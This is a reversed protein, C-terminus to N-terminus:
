VRLTPIRGGRFAIGGLVTLALLYTAAGGAVAWPLALSRLPLLAAAMAGAAVTSRGFRRLHPRAFGQDRAFISALGLRLVETAVTAWAAGTIGLRPILTVNLTLNLVTAWLNIRFVLDERGRAMLAMAPVGRVLLLPVSWMLIGLATASAEYAPGFITLIIAPALMAGGIAAPFTVAFVHASATDYLTQESHRDTHLRTLAPLLSQNYATGLNLLFSVMAYAAAYYGVDASGRFVRLFLLDSNYIVLGLIGSWVMPLARRVYPKIVSPDLHLRLAAGQRRLWWALLFAALMDGVFQALPVRAVDGPDSVILFVTSAMVLEGAARAISAYRTHELGLHIWRTNAGVALLCLTWVAIVSGDPEPVFALALLIALSTLALSVLFRATLLAPAVTDLARRDMAIERLGLGAELGCDAVRALYLYLAFAFGIVGYSAAGLTRAIYVTASFAILRALAEGGGLVLFNRAVVRESGGESL